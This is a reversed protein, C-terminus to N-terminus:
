ELNEIKNNTFDGDIHNVEPKNELNPLFTSAVARHVLVGKVSGDNSYLQVTLRGDHQKYQKLIRPKLAFGCDAGSRKWRGLSKIRGCTSAQYLGEYGPIDKWEELMRTKTSKRLSKPLM